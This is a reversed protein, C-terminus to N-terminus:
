RLRVYDPVGSEHLERREIVDVSQHHGSLRIGSHQFREALSPQIEGDHPVVGDIVGVLPRGM